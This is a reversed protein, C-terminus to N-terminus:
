KRHLLVVNYTIYLFHMQKAENSKRGTKSAIRGRFFSIRRRRGSGRSLIFCCLTSLLLKYQNWVKFLGHKNNESSFNVAVLCLM